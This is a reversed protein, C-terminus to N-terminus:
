EYKEKTHSLAVILRALELRQKESLHQADTDSIKEILETEKPPRKLVARLGAYIGGANIILTSTTELVELIAGLDFNNGESPLLRASELSHGEILSNVLKETDRQGIIETEDPHIELLIKLILDPQM